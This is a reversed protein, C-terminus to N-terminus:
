TKEDVNQRGNKIEFGGRRLWVCFAMLGAGSPDGNMARALEWGPTQEILEIADAFATADEASVVTGTVFRHRKNEVQALLGGLLFESIIFGHDGVPRVVDAQVLKLIRQPKNNM